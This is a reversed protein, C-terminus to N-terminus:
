PQMAADIAADIAGALYLGSSVAGMYASLAAQNKRHDPAVTVEDAIIVMMQWREADRKLEAREALLALITDRNCAAYYRALKESDSSDYQHANVNLLPYRNGEEDIQGVYWEWDEPLFGEEPEQFVEPMNWGKVDVALRELESILEDTISVIPPTTM